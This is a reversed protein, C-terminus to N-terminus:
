IKIHSVTKWLEEDRVTKLPSKLDVTKEKATKAIELANVFQRTQKDGKIHVSSLISQTSM